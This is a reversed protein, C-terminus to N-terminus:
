LHMQGLSMHIVLMCHAALNRSIETARKFWTMQDLINLWFCWYASFVLNFTALKTNRLTGASISACNAALVSVTIVLDLDRIMVTVDYHTRYRRLDGAERSNVWDNIWVCILSFMLAGRWQGKHPSNVPSRHIGQVLPWYHKWRIVGDHVFPM